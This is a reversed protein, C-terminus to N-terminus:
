AFPRMVNHNANNRSIIARRALLWHKGAYGPLWSWLVELGTVPLPSREFVSLSLMADSGQAVYFADRELLSLVEGAIDEEEEELCLIFLLVHCSITSSHHRLDYADDMANDCCNDGNSLGGYLSWPLVSFLLSM